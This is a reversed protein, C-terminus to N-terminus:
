HDLEMRDATLSQYRFICIINHPWTQANLTLKSTNLRRCSYLGPFIFPYQLLLKPGHVSAVNLIFSSCLCRQCVRTRIRMTSTLLSNNTSHIEQCIEREKVRGLVYRWAERKYFGSSKWFPIHQFRM